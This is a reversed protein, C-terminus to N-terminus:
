QYGPMNIGYGDNTYAVSPSSYAASASGTMMGGGMRSMGYSTLGNGIASLWPNNQIGAMKINALAQDSQSQQNISGIESGYQALNANENQRQLYPANMDALSGAQQNAYQSVGLSADNAAKTYASSVAGVQGMGGQATSQNAAIAKQFSDLLQSRQSTDSNNSADKKLMSQTDANAQRQLGMQQYIENAQAKDARKATQETNYYNVATGAAIAALAVWGAGSAVFSM